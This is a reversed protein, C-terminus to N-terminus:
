ERALVARTGLLFFAAPAFLVLAAGGSLDLWAIGFVTGEALVSAVQEQTPAEAYRDDLQDQIQSRLEAEIEARIGLLVEQESGGRVALIM